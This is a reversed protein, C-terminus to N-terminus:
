KDDVIRHKAHSSALFLVVDEKSCLSDNKLINAEILKYKLYQLADAEPASVIRFKDPYFLFKKPLRLVLSLINFGLVIIILVLSIMIVYFTNKDNNIRDLEISYKEKEYNKVDEIRHETTVLIANQQSTHILYFTGGAAISMIPLILYILFKM